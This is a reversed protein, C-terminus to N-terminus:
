GKTLRLALTKNSTARLRHRSMASPRKIPWKAPNISARQPEADSAMQPQYSGLHSGPMEKAGSINSRGVKEAVPSRHWATAAVPNGPYPKSDANTRFEETGAQRV